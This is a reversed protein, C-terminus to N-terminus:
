NQWHFMQQRSVIDLRQEGDFLHERAGPHLPSFVERSTQNETM